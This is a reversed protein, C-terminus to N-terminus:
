DGIIIGYEDFVIFIDWFFICIKFFYCDVLENRWFEFCFVECYVVEDYFFVRFNWDMLVVLFVFYEDDFFFVYYGVFFFFEVNFFVVEEVNWGVFWM